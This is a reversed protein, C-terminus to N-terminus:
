RLCNFQQFRVKEYLKPLYTCRLSSEDPPTKKVYKQIFHKFKSHNCKKTPINMAVFLECLEMVFENRLSEFQLTGQKGFPKPTAEKLTVHDKHISTGM